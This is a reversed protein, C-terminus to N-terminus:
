KLLIPPEAVTFLIVHSPSKKKIEFTNPSFAKRQSENVETVNTAIENKFVRYIIFLDFQLGLSVLHGYKIVIGSSVFRRM